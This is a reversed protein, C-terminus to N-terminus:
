RRVRKRTSGGHSEDSSSEGRAQANRSKWATERRRSDVSNTTAAQNGNNNGAAGKINASSRSQKAPPARVKQVPSENSSSSRSLSEDRAQQASDRRLRNDRDRNSNRGRQEREIRLEESRERERRERVERLSPGTYTDNLNRTTGLRRNSNFSAPERPRSDDRGRNNGWERPRKRHSGDESERIREKSVPHRNRESRERISVDRDRHDRDGKTTYDRDRMDQDRQDREARGGRSTNSLPPGSSTLPSGYGRPADNAYGWSRQYGGSTGSKSAGGYDYANHNTGYYEERAARVSGPPAPNRNKPPQLVPPKRAQLGRKKKGAREVFAHSVLVKEGLLLSGHGEKVANEAEQLTEYELFAYGRAFGTRRDLNLHINKITGYEGFADLIDDEQTEEHIGAVILVYGEISKAAPTPLAFLFTNNSGSHSGSDVAM